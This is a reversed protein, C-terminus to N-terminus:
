VGLRELLSASDPGKRKSVSKAATKKRKAKSKNSSSPTAKRHSKALKDERLKVRLPTGEDTHEILYLWVESDRDFESAIIIGRVLRNKFRQFSITSGDSFAPGRSELEDLACLHLYHKIYSEADKLAKRRDPPPLTLDVSLSLVRPNSAEDLM